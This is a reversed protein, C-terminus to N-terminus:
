GPGDVGFMELLREPNTADCWGTTLYKEHGGLQLILDCTLQVLHGGVGGGGFLEHGVDDSAELFIKGLVVPHAEVHDLLGRTRRVFGHENEAGVDSRNGGMRSNWQILADTAGGCRTSSSDDDIVDVAIGAIKGAGYFGLGFEDDRNENAAFNDSFEIDIAMGGGGEGGFIAVEALMASAQDAFIELAGSGSVKVPVAKHWLVCNGNESITYSSQHPLKAPESLWQDRAV